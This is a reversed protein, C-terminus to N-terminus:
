KLVPYIFKRGAKSVDELVVLEEGAFGNEEIANFSKIFTPSVTAFVSSDGELTFALVEVSTEEGTEDNTEEKDFLVFKDIKISEAAALDQARRSRMAQTLKFVDKQNLNESTKIIKMNKEGQTYTRGCIKYSYLLM